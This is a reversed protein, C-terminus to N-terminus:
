RSEEPSTNLFTILDGVDGEALTPWSLGLQQVRRYMRPGHRWLGAALTMPAFNKGRGRLGPGQSTGEAHQGHCHACGRSAFLIEGVKPSGGPEVYRFSYLLAILDAMQKEDLVPRSMGHAELERWMAPSHNWMSGALQVITPPIDSAPGLQPGIRGAEDKVSHCTTCGKDRLLKWGGDPDGHPLRPKFGPRGSGRVYALLDNMDRGEFSPQALGSGTVPGHNWIARAWAVPDDFEPSTSLDTASRGGNGRVAHCRACGKAGFLDRGRGADGEGDVYGATFLYAFIHAMDELDLVPYEIAEGQMSEWMRPAHNWMSTVFQGPGAHRATSLGLDPGIKGGEGGVPHCHACGKEQFLRAGAQPNGVRLPSGRVRTTEHEHLLVGILLGTAALAM